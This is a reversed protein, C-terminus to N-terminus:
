QSLGPILGADERIRTPNTVQQAVTPVGQTVKELLQGFRDWLARSSGTGVAVTLTGPRGCGSRRWAGGRKLTAATRVPARHRRMIRPQMMTERTGLSRSCRQRHESALKRRQHLEICINQRNKFQITQTKKKKKLYQCHSSNIYEPYLYM